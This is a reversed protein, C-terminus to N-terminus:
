PEIEGAADKAEQQSLFADGYEAVHVCADGLIVMDKEAQGTTDANLDGLFAFVKDEYSQNAADEDQPPVFYAATLLKIAMQDHQKGTPTDNGAKVARVGHYAACNTLANFFEAPKEMAAAVMADVDREPEPTPESAVAAAAFASAGVLLAPIWKRVM